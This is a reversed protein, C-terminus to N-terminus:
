GQFKKITLMQNMLEQLRDDDIKNHLSHEMVLKNTNRPILAKAEEADDCCLNALQAIEFHSLESEKLLSRVERVSEMNTFRSFSQVYNMTKQLVNTQPRNEANREKSERQAELLIRLESIFLCHATQFETLQLDFYSPLIYVTDFTM